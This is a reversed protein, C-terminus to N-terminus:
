AGGESRRARRAARTCGGGVTGGEGVAGNTAHEAAARGPARTAGDGSTWSGTMLWKSAKRAAQAAVVGEPILMSPITERNSHTIPIPAASTPAFIMNLDSRCDGRCVPLVTRFRPTPAATITKKRPEAVIQVVIPPTRSTTRRPPEDVLAQQAIRFSGREDSSFGSSSTVSQCYWHCPGSPASAHHGAM